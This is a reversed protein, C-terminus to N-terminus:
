KRSLKTYQDYHTQLTLTGATTDTSATAIRQGYADDLIISSDEKDQQWHGQIDALEHHARDYAHLSYTKNNNVELEISEAGSPMGLPPAEGQWTGVCASACGGMFVGLWVVATVRRM